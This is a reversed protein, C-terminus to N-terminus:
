EKDVEEDRRTLCCLLCRALTKDHKTINIKKYHVYYPRVRCHCQNIMMDETLLLPYLKNLVILRGRVQVEVAVGAFSWDEM